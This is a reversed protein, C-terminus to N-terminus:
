TGVKDVKRAYAVLDARGVLGLRNRLSARVSEVTRVSISLAEAVERNTLGDALLELVQRERVSLPRREQRVALEAAVAPDLYGRGAAVARVASVLVEGPAIKTVFGLAGRSLAERALDSHMTHVLVGCEAAFEAVVSMGSECGLGVDLLVVDPRLTAVERRAYALSDVDAVVSIDVSALIARLGARVTPHDDVLM